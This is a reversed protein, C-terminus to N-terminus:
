LHVPPQERSVIYLWQAKPLAFDEPRFFECFVESPFQLFAGKVGVADGVQREQFSDFIRSHYIRIQLQAGDGAFSAPGNQAESGWIGPSLASLLFLCGGPIGKEARWRALRIQSPFPIQLNKKLFGKYDKYGNERFGV